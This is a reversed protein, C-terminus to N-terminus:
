GGTSQSRTSLKQAASTGVHGLVTGLLATTSADSLRGDLNLLVVALIILVAVGWHISQVVIRERANSFKSEQYDRVDQETVAM